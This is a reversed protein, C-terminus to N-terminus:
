GQDDQGGEKKFPADLVKDIEEILRIAGLVASNELSILPKFRGELSSQAIMKMYEISFRELREKDINTVGVGM